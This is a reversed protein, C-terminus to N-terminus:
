SCRWTAVREFYDAAAAPTAGLALVTSALLSLRLKSHAM